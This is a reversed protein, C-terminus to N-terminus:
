KLKRTHTERTMKLKTIDAEITRRDTKLQELTDNEMKAEDQIQRREEKM